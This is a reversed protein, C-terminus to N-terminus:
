AVEDWEIGEDNDEADLVALCARALALVVRAPLDEAQSCAFRAVISDLEGRLHDFDGVEAAREIGAVARITAQWRRNNM